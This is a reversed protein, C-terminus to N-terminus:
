LCNKAYHHIDFFEGDKHVEAKLIGELEYGCRELVKISRGNPSLVPAVLRRFGLDGFAIRTMERLACTAIGKGWYPEGIWYGIEASHDKWGSQPQIGVSGVFEGEFEIVKTVARNQNAGVTVWWQADQATYPYPFTHILYRSVNKNNALEVLRPIDSEQYVRLHVMTDLAM